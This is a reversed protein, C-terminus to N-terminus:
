DVHSPEQLPNPLDARLLRPPLALSFVLRRMDELHAGMAKIQEPTELRWNKPRLGMEWATELASQLFEAAMPGSLTPELLMTPDPPQRRIALPDVTAIVDGSPSIEAIAIELGQRWPTHHAFVKLPM